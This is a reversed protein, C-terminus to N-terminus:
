KWGNKRHRKLEKDNPTWFFAALYELATDSLHPMYEEAAALVNKKKSGSVTKGNKEEGPVSDYLVKFFIADAESVQYSGGGAAWRVWKTDVEYQSGSNAELATEKAYTTAAGIVKDKIESDVVQWGPYSAIDDVVTRYTSARQSNYREYQPATLDTEGSLKILRQGTNLHTSDFCV